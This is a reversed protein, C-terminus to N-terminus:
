VFLQGVGGTVAVNSADIQALQTHEIEVRTGQDEFVVKAGLQTMHSKAVAWDAYGFGQFALKDWVEFDMVRHTGHDSATFVFNDSMVGGFLTNTGSGGMLVDHPNQALMWQKLPQATAAVFEASQSFGQVVEARTMGAQMKALWNALGAADPARNLVNDYLQTVFARNDLSGYQQQFETSGVFGQVVSLFTRGDALKEVWSLLGAQDPARDLTAQYLRFVDDAWHAEDREMSFQTAATQTANKFELSDSFGLVVAARSTGHDLEALWKNLGAADPARDLVNRYLLTVFARNDLAGYTRQFEQSGVFGAVVELMAKQGSALLETWNGFGAPDPIRDLTALYVRYVSRAQELAYSPKFGDGFLIDNGDM